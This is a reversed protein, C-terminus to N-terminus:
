DHFDHDGTDVKEATATTSDNTQVNTDIAPLKARRSAHALQAVVEADVVTATPDPKYADLFNLPSTQKLIKERERKESDDIVVRLPQIDIRMINKAVTKEPFYAFTVHVIPWDGPLNLYATLEEANKIDSYPVAHITRTQENTSITAGSRMQSPVSMGEREEEIEIEGLDMAAWKASNAGVIRYYLKTGCNDFIIEAEDRGYNKIFQAVSQAGLVFCGGKKAAKTLSKQLSPLYQLTDIEDYLFWVRRTRSKPLSRIARAAIDLWLSILPVFTELDDETVSIFLTSNANDDDQLWRRISFAQEDQKARRLYKLCKIHTSLVAKISGTMKELNEAVLTESETGKVLEAINNHELSFLYRLLAETDENGQERLGNAVAAFINQASKAWFKENSSASGVAILSTAINNIDIEDDAEAWLHWYPSREDRPNLIVDAGERYFLETYEGDVDFIVRKHGLTITKQTLWKMFVSKGMRTGGIALTNEIETDKVYTTNGIPLPSRKKRKRLLRNLHKVSTKDIGAIVKKESARKGKRYLGYVYLAVLLLLLLGTVWLGEVIQRWAIRASMKYYPSNKYELMPVTIPAHHYDHWRMLQRAEDREAAVKNATFASRMMLEYTTLINRGVLYREYATTRGYFWLGNLVLATLVLTILFRKVYKFVNAHTSHTKNAGKLLYHLAKM